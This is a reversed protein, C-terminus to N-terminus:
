LTSSSSVGALLVLWLPAALLYSDLRRLAPAWASGRPLLAAALIQGLPCCVAALASFYIVSTNTFPAPALIWAVFGVVALAALGSVPGEVANSSGSGVLFDGTEYASVLTLLLVAAGLSVGRLAVLSGAAIGAPVSARLLADLLQATSRHHVPNVVICVLLLVAAMVGGAVLGLSGLLGSMATVFAAAGTWWKTPGFQPFWARGTQLGAFAAVASVVVAVALPSVFLCALVLTFWLLGFSVKPGDTYYPIALRNNHWRIERAQAQRRRGQTRRARRGAPRGAPAASTAAAPGPSPVLPVGGLPGAPPGAQYGPPAPQDYGAQDYGRQDYGRQDYGRQDHGAQDHGAQDYAGDRREPQPPMM